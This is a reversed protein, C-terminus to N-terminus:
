YCIYNDSCRRVRLVPTVQANPTLLKDQTSNQTKTHVRTLGSWQKLQVRDKRRGTICFQPENIKEQWESYQQTAKDRLFANKSSWILPAVFSFAFKYTNARFIHANLWLASSCHTSKIMNPYRTWQNFKIKVIHDECGTQYWIRCSTSKKKFNSTVTNRHYVFNQLCICKIEGVRPHHTLM